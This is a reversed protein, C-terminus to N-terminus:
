VVAAISKSFCIKVSSESNVKRVRSSNQCASLLPHKTFKQFGVVLRVASLDSNFEHMQSVSISNLPNSSFEFRDLVLGQTFVLLQLHEVTEVPSVCPSFEKRLLVVGSLSKSKLSAFREDGSQLERNVLKGLQTSFSKNDAHGVSTSQVNQSVNHSLGHLLDHSFELASTRVLFTLQSESARTINLVMEACGQLASISVRALCDFNSNHGVRRMELSDVRDDTSSSTSLLMEKTSRLDVSVTDYWNLDM